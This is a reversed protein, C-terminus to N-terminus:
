CALIELKLGIHLVKLNKNIFRLIGSRGDFAFQNRGAILKAFKDSIYM